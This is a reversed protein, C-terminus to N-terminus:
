KRLAHTRGRPESSRLKPCEVARSEAFASEPKNKNTHTTHTSSLELHTQLFMCVFEGGLGINIMKIYKYQHTNHTQKNGKAKKWKNKKVIKLPGDLPPLFQLNAKKKKKSKKGKKRKM